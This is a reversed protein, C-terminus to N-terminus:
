YYIIFMDVLKTEILQGADHANCIDASFKAHHTIKRESKNNYFIRIRVRSMLAEGLLHFTM